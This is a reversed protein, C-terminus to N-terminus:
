EYTKITRETFINFFIDNKFTRLQSLTSLMSDVDIPVHVEKAQFVDVDALITIKTGTTDDSAVVVNAAIDDDCQLMARDRFNLVKGPLNQVGSPVDTLHKQWLVPVELVVHNIFRTALRIISTPRLVDEYIHWLKLAESQMTEWDEYPKLVNFTFGDSRFQAIRTEDSSKFWYGQIGQDHTRTSTGKPGLEMELKRLHKRDVHPYSGAIDEAIQELQEIPFPIDKNPRVRFDLLAETIPANKLHRVEAM